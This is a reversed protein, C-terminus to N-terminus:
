LELDGVLREILAPPQNSVPRCPDIDLKCEGAAGARLANKDLLVRGYSDFEVQWFFFCTTDLGSILKEDLSRM